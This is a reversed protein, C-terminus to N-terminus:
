VSKHLVEQLRWRKHRSLPRSEVIRVLDGIGADGKEDHAFYKTTRRIYKGYKAHKVQRTISVVITKDMKDSVVVGELSKARGRTPQKTDSETSASKKSGSAKKEGVM